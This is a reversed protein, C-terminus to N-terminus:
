SEMADFGGNNKIIFNTNCGKASDKLHNNLAPAPRNQEKHQAQFGLSTETSSLDILSKGSSEPPKLLLEASYTGDPTHM